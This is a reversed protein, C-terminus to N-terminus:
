GKEELLISGKMHKKEELWAEELEMSLWFTGKSQVSLIPDM